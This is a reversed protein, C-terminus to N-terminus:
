MQTGLGRGSLIKEGSGLGSTKTEMGWMNIVNDKLAAEGSGLELSRQVRAYQTTKEM